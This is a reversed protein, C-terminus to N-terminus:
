EALGRRLAWGGLAVATATLLVHLCALGAVVAEPGNAELTFIRVTLPEGGPPYYLVASELDRLCFVFAVLWAFVIGRRASPTVIRVLRRGYRAGMVAAAEEFTSPIQSIAVACARVGVISYRGVYGLVLVVASAYLASTAPRNWLGILGVGLVAAPTIFALIALADMVRAARYGRALAHGLVIGVGTIISAALTAAVISNIPASRAWSALEASTSGRVAHVALVLLPLLGWLAVAWSGLSLSVRFRGLSMPSRTALGGRMGLVAFSRGAVLRREVVMLAAMVPVLPLVLGVAEGPAYEVGGLRAFVAAPLVDVRLFMPVGLESLTLTFVLLAALVIAPKVAPVLIRSVVRLPRGMVRGAEEQSADVGLLAVAVLSTVVPTFALTLTGIVGPSGFLLTSSLEGGLAGQRGFVRFWGLALLFPPLAMPFAHLAWIVRRGPLDTRAVLVGLPVGLVLALLTVAASLALSSGLLQWPRTTSLVRAVEGASTVFDVGVQLLPLAAVVLLILSAIGLALGGEHRRLLRVVSRERILAGGM